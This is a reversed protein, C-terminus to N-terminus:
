KSRDYFLNLQIKTREVAETDGRRTTINVNKREELNTIDGRRATKVNEVGSLKYTEEVTEVSGKGTKWIRREARM